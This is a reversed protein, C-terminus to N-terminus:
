RDQRWLDAREAHRGLLDTIINHLASRGPLSDTYRHPEGDLVASCLNVDLWVCRTQDDLLQLLGLTVTLLCLVNSVAAVKGLIDDEINRSLHAVLAQGLLEFACDLLDKTSAICHAACNVSHLWSVNLCGNVFTLEFAGTGSAMCYDLM